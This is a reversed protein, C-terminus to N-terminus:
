ESGVVVAEDPVADFVSEVYDKGHTLKPNAANRSAVTPVLYGGDEMQKLAKLVDPKHGGIGQWIATKSLGNHETPEEVGEAVQKEHWMEAMQRVYTSAKVKIRELEADKREQPDPVEVESLWLTMRGDGADNDPQARLVAIVEGKRHNGGKDKNAVIQSSGATGRSFEQVTEARYAAFVGARKRQSGIPAGHGEASKTVHDVVVVAAGCRTAAKPLLRNWIAVDDTYPNLGEIAMSEGTSDIVVLSPSVKALTRVLAKRVKKDLAEEPAMYHFRERIAAVDTGITLLRHVASALDDEFDIFFVPRGAEIEQKVAFLVLWTKASGSEGFVTNVRGPYFLCGGLEMACVTPVPRTQEGAEIQDLMAGVDQRKWTSAEEAAAEAKAKRAAEVAAIEEQTHDNCNLQIWPLGSDTTGHPQPNECGPFVCVRPEVPEAGFVDAASEIRPRAPGADDAYAMANNDTHEFDDRDVGSLQYAERMRDQVQQEELCGGLVFRYLTTSKSLMYDNRGENTGDGEAHAELRKAWTELLAEAREREQPSAPTTTDVPASASRESPSLAAWPLPGMLDMREVDALVADVDILEGALVHRNAAFHEPDKTAPLYMTWVARHSKPDFSSKGDPRDRDICWQVYLAVTERETPTMARDTWQVLRYKHKEDTSSASPYMVGSYGLAKVRDVFGDDPKDPDLALFSCSEVTDSTKHLKEECKCTRGPGPCLRGGIFGGAKYKDRPLSRPDESLSIFGARTVGQNQWHSHRQNGKNDSLAIAIKEDDAGTYRPLDATM